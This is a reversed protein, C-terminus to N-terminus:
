SPSVQFAEQTAQHDLGCGSRGCSVMLQGTSLVGHMASGRGTDCQTGPCDPSNELAACCSSTSIQVEGSPWGWPQFPSRPCLLQGESEGDGGFWPPGCRLSTPRSTCLWLSDALHSGTSM